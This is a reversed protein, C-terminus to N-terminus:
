GVITKIKVNQQKATKSIENTISVLFLFKNLFILKINEQFYTPKAARHSSDIPCKLYV